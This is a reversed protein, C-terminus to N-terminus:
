AYPILDNLWEELNIEQHLELFESFEPHTATIIPTSFDMSLLAIARRFTDNYFILTEAWAERWRSLAAAQSENEDQDIIPHDQFSHLASLKTSLLRQIELQSFETVAQQIMWGVRQQMLIKYTQEDLNNISDPVKVIFLSPMVHTIWLHPYDEYRNTPPLNPQSLNATSLNM